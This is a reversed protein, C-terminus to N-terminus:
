IWDGGDDTTEPKNKKNRPEFVSCLVGPIHFLKIYQKGNKEILIGIKNWSVNETDNKDVYTERICINKIM